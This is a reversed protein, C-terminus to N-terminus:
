TANENLKGNHGRQANSREDRRVRLRGLLTGPQLQQLIRERGGGVRRRQQPELTPQDFRGLHMAVAGQQM